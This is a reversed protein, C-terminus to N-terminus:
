PVGSAFHLEARPVRPSTVSSGWSAVLVCPDSVSRCDVEDTAEPPTFSAPVTVDQSFHGAIDVEPWALRECDNLEAAEAHCIAVTPSPVRRYLDSGTVTVTDGDALDHDPTVTLTPLVIEADPDFRLPATATREPVLSFPGTAAMVCSDPERCDVIGHNRTEIVALAPIPVAATGGAVFDGSESLSSSRSSDRECDGLETPDAVCQLVDAYISWVFGSGSVQLGELDDLQEDPTVSITPPPALGADPDFRLPIDELLEDGPVGDDPDVFVRLVCAGSKRCDVAPSSIEDSGPYLLATVRYPVTVTGGSYSWELGGYRLDCDERTTAGSPCQLVDVYGDRGYGTVGTVTVTVRDGDVLDISPEIAFTPEPSPQAGAGTPLLVATVALGVVM